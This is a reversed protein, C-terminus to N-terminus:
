YFFTKSFVTLELKHQRVTFLQCQLLISTTKPLIDLSIATLSNHRLYIMNQNKSYTNQAFYSM